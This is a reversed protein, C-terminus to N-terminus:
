QQISDSSADGYNEDLKRIRRIEGINMFLWLLFLSMSDQPFDVKLGEFDLLFVAITSGASFSFIFLLGIIAKIKWRKKGHRYIKFNQVKQMDKTGIVKGTWITYVMNVVFLWLVVCCFGLFVAFSGGLEMYFGFSVIFFLMALNNQILLKKKIRKIEQIDWKGEEM